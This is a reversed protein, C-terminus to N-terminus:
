TAVFRDVRSGLDRLQIVSMLLTSVDSTLGLLQLGGDEQQFSTHGNVWHSRRPCNHRVGSVECRKM